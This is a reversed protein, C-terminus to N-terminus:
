VQVPVADTFGDLGAPLAKVPWYTGHDVSFLQVQDESDIQQLFGPSEGIAKAIAYKDIGEGQMIISGMKRAARKKVPSGLKIKGSKRNTSGKKKVPGIPESSDDDSTLEDFLAKKQVPSKSASCFRNVLANGDETATASVGRRILPKNYSPVKLAIGDSHAHVALNLLEERIRAMTVSNEEGAVSFYAQSMEALLRKIMECIETATESGVLLLECLIRRIHCVTIAGCNNGDQQTFCSLVQYETLRKSRLGVTFNEVSPNLELCSLLLGVRDLIKWKEIYRRMNGPISDVLIYNEDKVVILLAFHTGNMLPILRISANLKSGLLLDRFQDYADSFTVLGNAIHVEIDERKPLLNVLCDMVISSLWVSGSLRSKIEALAKEQASSGAITAVQQIDNRPQLGPQAGEVSIAGAGGSAKLNLDEGADENFTLTSSALFAKLVDEKGPLKHEGAALGAVAGAGDAEHFHNVAEKMKLVFQLERGARAKSEMM